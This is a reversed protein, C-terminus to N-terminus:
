LFYGIEYLYHCLLTMFGIIVSPTNQITSFIDKLYIPRENKKVMQIFPFLKQSNRNEERSLTAKGLNPRSKFLSNAGKPHLNKEKLTLGMSCPLLIFITSNSVRLAKDGCHFSFLEIILSCPPM